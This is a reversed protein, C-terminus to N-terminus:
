MCAPIIFLKNKIPGLKTIYLLINVARQAQNSVTQCQYSGLKVINVVPDSFSFGLSSTPRIQFPPLYMLHEQQTGQEKGFVWSMMRDSSRSNPKWNRLIYYRSHLSYIDALYVYTWCLGEDSEDM